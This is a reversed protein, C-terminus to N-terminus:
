RDDPQRNKQQKVITDILVKILELDDKELECCDILSDFIPPYTRKILELTSMEKHSISISTSPLLKEDSMGLIYDTTTEYLQCLQSLVAFGPMRKGSEYQSLTTNSIQILDSIDIQTFGREKRLERLRKALMSKSNAMKERGKKCAFSICKMILIKFLYSSIAIISCKNTMNLM